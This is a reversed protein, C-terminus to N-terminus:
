DYLSAVKVPMGGQAASRYAADLLEVTYLGNTKGPFFNPAGDLLIEVFRQTPVSGPYVPNTPAIREERGNHLRMYMRGSIADVLLRGKSGHLHVEVIGGDGKGVNGTSGVTAVAGSNMRVAIADAVDVRCDLNNMFAVVTDARLGPALYFMMAASHTIQLQAQGGGAVAPDSYTSAGPGTVPYKMVEAYEQPKGRLFEITMSSMSCTIYEIDGLLGDDVRQKAAQVPDLYPFTYGMLIHLGRAEAIDVLSKAQRAYLVMPKEMLLHLGSELVEKGVEYHAQHPVAVIAGQIDPHADLAARLSTYAHPVSFKAAATKVAETSRDVLVVQARPNALLAPIHANTAWWGTGIVALKVTSSNPSM